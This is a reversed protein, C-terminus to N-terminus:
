DDLNRNGLALKRASEIRSLLGGMSASTAHARAQEFAPVLAQAPEGVAALARARALLLAPRWGVQSEAQTSELGADACRLAESPEHGVLMTSLVALWYPLLATDCRARADRVGQRMQAIGERMSGSRIALWGRYLGLDPAFFADASRPLEDFIACEARMGDIDDLCIRSLARAKAAVVQDLPDNPDYPMSRSRELMARARREHGLAWLTLPWWAYLQRVPWGLRAAELDSGCAQALLRASQQFCRNSEAFDGLMLLTLGLARHSEIEFVPPLKNADVERAARRALALSSRLRGGFLEQVRLRNLMQVRLMPDRISPLLRAVQKSRAQMAPSNLEGLAGASNAIGLLVRAKRMNVAATEAQRDLLRLAAELLDISQRTALRADAARAARLYAAIAPEVEGAMERHWAVRAAVAEPDREHLAEISAALRRHLERRRVPRISAHIAERTSDHAFELRGPQLEHVLRRQWLEDLADAVLAEDRGSARALLDITFEGGTLAALNAIQRAVQSLTDLRSRILAGIRAPLRVFDRDEHPPFERSRLWEIVFYPNGGSRQHLRALDPVAGAHGPRAASADALVQRALAATDGPSIPGLALRIARSQGELEDILREMPHEALVAGARLTCLIMLPAHDDFGVLFRLMEITDGDVWQVDDIVLLVPCASVTLASAIATLLRHREIADGPAAARAPSGPRNGRLGPLALRLSEASAAPLAELASRLTPSGFWDDITARLGQGPGVTGRTCAVCVGDRATETLLAQALRTKGIGPEGEIIALCPRGATADRWIARLRDLEAQRGVLPGTSSALVVRPRRRVPGAPMADRIRAASARLESGPGVGLDDMLAATCAEFVRLAGAPDGLGQHARMALLCSHECLPDLAVLAEARRLAEVFEHRALLHIVLAELADRFRRALAQRKELTWDTQVGTMFEGSYERLAAEIRVQQATPEDPDAPADLAAEFAIVDVRQAQDPSWRLEVQTSKLGVKLLPHAQRLRHLERRLNTRAQAASSDPWLEDALSERSQARGQLLILRALLARTREGSPLTISENGTRVEFLGFLRVELGPPPAARPAELPQDVRVM